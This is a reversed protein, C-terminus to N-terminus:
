RLRTRATSTLAALGAHLLFAQTRLPGPPQFALALVSEDAPSAMSSIPQLHHADDVSSMGDVEHHLGIVCLAVSHAWQLM